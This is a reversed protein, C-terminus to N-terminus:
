SESVPTQVMPVSAAPPVSVRVIVTEMDGEAVPDTEFVATALAEFAVVTLAVSVSM